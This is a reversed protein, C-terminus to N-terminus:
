HAGVFHVDVEIEDPALQGRDIEGRTLKDGEAHIILCNSM